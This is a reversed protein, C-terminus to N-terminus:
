HTNVCVRFKLIHFKPQRNEVFNEFNLEVNKWALYFILAKSQHTSWIQAVKLKRQSFAAFTKQLILWFQLRLARKFKAERYSFVDIKDSSTVKWFKKMIQRNGMFKHTNLIFCNTYKLHCYLWYIHKVKFDM